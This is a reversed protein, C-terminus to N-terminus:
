QEFRQVTAAYRRRLRLGLDYRSAIWHSRQSSHIVSGRGPCRQHEAAHLCHPHRSPQASVAGSVIARLAAANALIASM